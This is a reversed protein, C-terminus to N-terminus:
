APILVVFDAAQVIGLLYLIGEFDRVLTIVGGHDCLHFQHFSFQSPEGHFPSLLWDFGVVHELGQHVLNSTDYGTKPAFGFAYCIHALIWKECM